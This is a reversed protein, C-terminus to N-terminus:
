NLSEKLMKELEAEVEEQTMEEVPRYEGDSNFDSPHYSPETAPVHGPDM